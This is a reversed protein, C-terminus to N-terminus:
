CLEVPGCFLASGRKSRVDAVETPRNGEATKNSLLRLHSDTFCM